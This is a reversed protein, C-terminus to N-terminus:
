KNKVGIKAFYEEIQQLLDHEVIFIKEHIKGDRVNEMINGELTNQIFFVLKLQFSNFSSEFSHSEKADGQFFSGTIGDSSIESKIVIIDKTKLFAFLSRKMRDLFLDRKYNIEEAFLHECLAAEDFEDWKPFYQKM